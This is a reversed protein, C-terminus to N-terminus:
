QVHHSVLETVVEEHTPGLCLKRGRRDTLTFLSEGFALDRGSKEWLDFPQLAPMTVEQAGARTMEERIIQELQHLVRWGLPLYAYIGAAVQHIMGARTLLQHSITDAESPIERQTKGFLNSIRM